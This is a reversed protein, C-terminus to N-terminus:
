GRLRFLCLGKYLLKQHLFSSLCMSPTCSPLTYPSIANRAWLYSGCVPIPRNPYPCRLPDAAPPSQPPASEKGLAQGAAGAEGSTDQPSESSTSTSPDKSPNESGHSTMPHNLLCSEGGGRRRHKHPVQNVDLRCDNGESLVFPEPGSGKNGNTPLNLVREDGQDNSIGDPTTNSSLSFAILSDSSGSSSIPPFNSSFLVNDRSGTLPDLNDLVTAVSHRATCLLLCFKWISALRPTDFHTMNILGYKISSSIRKIIFVLTMPSFANTKEDQAPCSIDLFNKRATVLWSM